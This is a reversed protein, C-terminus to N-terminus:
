KTKESRKKRDVHEMDEALIIGKNKASLLHKYLMYPTHCWFPLKIGAMYGVFSVCSLMRMPILLNNDVSKCVVRVIKTINKDHQLLKEALKTEAECALCTEVGFRTPNHILWVYELREMLYCHTFGPKCFISLSHPESQFFVFYYDKTEFELKTDSTQNKTKKNKAVLAKLFKMLKRMLCFWKSAGKEKLEKWYNM